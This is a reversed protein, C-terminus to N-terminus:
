EQDFFAAKIFIFKWTDLNGGSHDDSFTAICYDRTQWNIAKPVLAPIGEVEDFSPCQPVTGFLEMGVSQEDRIAVAAAITCFQHLPFNIKIATKSNTRSQNFYLIKFNTCTTAICGSNKVAKTNKYLMIIRALCISISGILWGFGGVSRTMMTLLDKESIQKYRLIRRIDITEGSRSQVATTAIPWGTGTSSREAINNSFWILIHCSSRM